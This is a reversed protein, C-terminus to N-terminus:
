VVMDGKNVRVQLAFGFFYNCINKADFDEALCDCIVNEDAGVHSEGVM